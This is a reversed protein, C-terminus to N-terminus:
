RGLAATIGVPSDSYRNLVASMMAIALVAAAFAALWLAVKRNAARRSLALEAATVAVTARRSRAARHEEQRVWRYIVVMAALGLMM